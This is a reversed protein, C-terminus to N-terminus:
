KQLSQIAVLLWAAALLLLFVVNSYYYLESDPTIYRLMNLIGTAIAVGYYIAGAIRSIGSLVYGFALLAIVYLVTPIIIFLLAELRGEFSMSTLYHGVGLSIFYFYVAIVAAKRRFFIPFALILLSNIVFFLFALISIHFILQFVYLFYTISNALAYEILISNRLRGQSVLTGM